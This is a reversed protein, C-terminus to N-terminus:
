CNILMCCKYSLNMEAATQISSVGSSHKVIKGKTSRNLSFSCEWFVLTTEAVPQKHPRMVNIHCVKMQGVRLLIQHEAVNLFLNLSAGM